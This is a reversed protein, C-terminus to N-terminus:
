RGEYKPDKGWENFERYIVLNTEPRKETQIWELLNKYGIDRAEPTHYTALTLPKGPLAFQGMIYFEKVICSRTRMVQADPFLSVLHNLFFVEQFDKRRIFRTSM